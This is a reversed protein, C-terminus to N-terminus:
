SLREPRNEVEHKIVTDSLLINCIKLSVPLVQNLVYHLHICLLIFGPIM